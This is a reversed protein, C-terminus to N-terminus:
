RDVSRRLEEIEAMLESVRDCQKSGVTRLRVIRDRLRQEIEETALRDVLLLADHHIQSDESGDLLMRESRSWERLAVLTEERQSRVIHDIKQEVSEGILGRRWQRWQPDEGMPKIWEIATSISMEIRKQVRDVTM